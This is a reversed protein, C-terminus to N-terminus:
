APVSPESCQMGPGFATPLDQHSCVTLRNMQPLSLYCPSSHLPALKPKLSYQNKSIHAGFETM